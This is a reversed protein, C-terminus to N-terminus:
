VDQLIAQCIVASPPVVQVVDLVQARYFFSNLTGASITSNSGIQYHYEM